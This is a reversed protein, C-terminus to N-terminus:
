ENLMKEKNKKQKKKIEDLTEGDLILTENNEDKDKEKKELYNKDDYKQSM